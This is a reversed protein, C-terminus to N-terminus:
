LYDQEAYSSCSELASVHDLSRWEFVIESSGPEVEQIVAEELGNRSGSESAHTIKAAQLFRKGNDLLQHDHPDLEMSADLRTFAATNAYSSNLIEHAINSILGYEDVEISTYVLHTSRQYQITHLNTARKRYLSSFPELGDWIL